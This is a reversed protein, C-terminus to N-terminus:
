AGVKALVAGAVKMAAQADNVCAPDFYGAM